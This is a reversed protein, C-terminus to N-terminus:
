MLYSVGGARTGCTDFFCDNDGKEDPEALDRKFFPVRGDGVSAQGQQYGQTGVKGSGSDNRQQVGNGSVQQVNGSAERNQGYSGVIRIRKAAPQEAVHEAIHETIDDDDHDEMEEDDYGDVEEEEEEEVSNSAPSESEEVAAQLHEIETGTWPM